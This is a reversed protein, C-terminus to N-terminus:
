SMLPLALPKRLASLGPLAEQNTNLELESMYLINNEKKNYQIADSAKSCKANLQQVADSSPEGCAAFSVTACIALFMSALKKVM